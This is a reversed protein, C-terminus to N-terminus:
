GRRRQRVGGGSDGDAKVKRSLWMGYLVSVEGLVGLSGAERAAQEGICRLVEM